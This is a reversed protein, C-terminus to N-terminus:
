IEGHVQGLMMIVSWPAAFQLVWNLRECRWAATPVYMFQENLAPKISRHRRVSARLVGYLTM